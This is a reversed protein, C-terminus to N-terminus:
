YLIYSDILLSTLIKFGCVSKRVLEVVPEIDDLAELCMCSERNYPFIVLVQVLELLSTLIFPLTQFSFSSGCVTM